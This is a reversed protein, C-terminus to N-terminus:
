VIFYFNSAKRVEKVESLRFLGAQHVPPESQPDFWPGAPTTPNATLHEVSQSVPVMNLNLRLILEYSDQSKCEPGSFGSAPERDVSRSACSCQQFNLIRISLKSSRTEWCNYCSLHQNSKPSVRISIVCLVVM